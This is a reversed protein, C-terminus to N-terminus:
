TLADDSKPLGTYDKLYRVDPEDIHGDVNPVTVTVRFSHQAKPFEKLEHPEIIYQTEPDVLGNYDLNVRWVSLPEAKKALSAYDFTDLDTKWNRNYHLALKPHATDSSGWASARDCQAKLTNKQEDTLGEWLFASLQLKQIDAHSLKADEEFLANINM